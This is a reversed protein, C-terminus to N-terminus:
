LIVKIYVDEMSDVLKIKIYYFGRAETNASLIESEKMKSIDVGESILYKKQEELDIGVEFNSEILGPKELGALYVKIGVIFLCKNDYTNQFKSIYEDIYMKRIDKNILDMMRVLKIKQYIGGKGETLTTLSTVGRAVRIKGAIRSLVLEGSEIKAKINEKDLREVSDVEPLIAYTSAHTIPVAAILGAIRSIYNTAPIESEKVTVDTVYNIIGEYDTKTNAVLAKPIEGDERMEKTWSILLNTQEESAEPICVYDFETTELEQLNKEIGTETEGELGGTYTSIIVKKARIVDKDDLYGYFAYEIYKKNTESLEKPIEKDSTIERHIKKSDKLIIAVIGEKSRDVFTKAQEEFKISIDVIGAM